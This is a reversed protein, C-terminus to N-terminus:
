YAADIRFKVVRGKKRACRVVYSVSGAGLHSHCRYRGVKCRPFRAESSGSPDTGPYGPDGDSIPECAAKHGWGRALRKSKRCPAHKVHLSYLFPSGKVSCTKAQAPTAAVALAALSGVAVLVLLRV